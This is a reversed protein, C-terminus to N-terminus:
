RVHSWQGREPRLDIAPYVGAAGACRVMREASEINAEDRLADPVGRQWAVDGGIYVSVLNRQGCALVFTAVPDWIPGLHPERPDVVIFDAYKGAELSGVRDAVGVAAASGMTHLTLVDAPSLIGPDSRVARQMYLGTRMNEFPDSIDTCSQDDVGIGVRVGRDLLTPVDAIGSGLRGNSMPQWVVGSGTDCVRTVMCETPHVFHGFAFSEGLCGAADYWDFKSQQIDLQEATEVFHAQNTIGYRTMLEREREATIPSSSWQVSGYVSGGLNAPTDIAWVHRMAADFGDFAEDASLQEDDLRVSTVSRIGSRHVGDVQRTVFDPGNVREARLTSTGYDFVAVVRSQTFNYVSTIGAALHDLAGALSLWYLDEPDAHSLMHSNASVWEYLPSSAAVGRMGGTFIHSHASVFGPAVFCGDLDHYEDAGPPPTGEGIAAIRGDRVALWGHLWERVGDVPLIVANHFVTETM